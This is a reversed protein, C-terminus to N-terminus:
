PAFAYVDGICNVSCSAVLTTLQAANGSPASTVDALWLVKPPGEFLLSGSDRSYAIHNSARPSGCWEGLQGEECRTLAAPTGGHTAFARFADTARPLGYELLAAEGSFAVSDRSPAIQMEAGDGEYLLVPAPAREALDITSFGRSLEEVFLWRGSPSFARRAGTLSPLFTAQAAKDVSPPADFEEQPPPDVYDLINVQTGARCAIRELGTDSLRESWAILEPCDGRRSETVPRAPELLDQVQLREDPNALAILRGSPSIRGNLSTLVDASSSEVESGRRFLFVEDSNTRAAVVGAEVARLAADGTLLISVSRLGRLSSSEPDFSASFLTQAGPVRPDGGLLGIWDNGSWALGSTYDLPVGTIAVPDQGILPWPRDLAAVDIGSLYDQEDTPGSLVVALYKSHASWAYDVVSCAAAPEVGSCDFPVAITQGPPMAAADRTTSYLELQFRDGREVRLAIWLGDPSFKFDRVDGVGDSSAVQVPNSLFVDSYILRAPGMEASLYAVWCNRRWPIPFDRAASRRGLADTVTVMVHGEAYATGTIAGTAALELGEPL